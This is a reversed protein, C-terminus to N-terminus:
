HKLREGRGLVKLLQKCLLPAIQIWVVVATCNPASGSLLVTELGKERPNPHLYLRIPFPKKVQLCELTGTNGFRGLFSRGAQLLFCTRLEDSQRLVMDRLGGSRLGEDV